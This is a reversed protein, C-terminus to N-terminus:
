KAATEPKERYLILTFIFSLSISLAYGIIAIILNAGNEPDVFQPLGLIGTGMLSLSRLKFIGMFAASIFASAVVGAMARKNQLTVGYLAPESIGFFRPFM